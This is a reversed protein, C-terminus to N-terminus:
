WRILHLLWYGKLPEIRLGLVRQIRYLELGRAYSTTDCRRVLSVLDLWLSSTHTGESMTATSCHM